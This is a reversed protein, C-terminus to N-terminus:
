RAPTPAPMVVIERSPGKDRDGDVPAFLAYSGAQLVVTLTATGGPPIPAELQQQSSEEGQEPDAQDSMGSEDKQEIVFGHEVSGKNQITLELEGAQLSDPLQIADDTITVTVKKVEKQGPSMPQTDQALGTAAFVAILLPVAGMAGLKSNSEM